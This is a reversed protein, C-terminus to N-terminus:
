LVELISSRRGFNPGGGVFNRGGVEAESGLKRDRGGRNGHLERVGDQIGKVESRKGAESESEVGLMRKRGWSGTGGMEM